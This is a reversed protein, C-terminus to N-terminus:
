KCRWKQAHKIEAELDYQMTELVIRKFGSVGLEEIGKDFWLDANRWAKFDKELGTQEYREKLKNIWAFRLNTDPYCVFLSKRDEESAIEKFYDRVVKHSATFVTYGQQHLHLAIQCYPKYWEDDREGDVWFNGSELDICNDKGALTSKGIGQYGIVIM